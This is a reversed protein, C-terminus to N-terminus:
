DGGWTKEGGRGYALFVSGAHLVTTWGTESFGISDWVLNLRDLRFRQFRRSNQPLTSQFPSTPPLKLWSLPIGFKTQGRHSYWFQLDGSSEGAIGFGSFGPSNSPFYSANWGNWEVVLVKTGVSGPIWAPTVSDKVQYMSIWFPDVQPKFPLQNMLWSLSGGRKFGM